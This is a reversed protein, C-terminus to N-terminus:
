ISEKEKKIDRNHSGLNCKTLQVKNRDNTYTYQIYDYICILSIIFYPPFYYYYYYHLM